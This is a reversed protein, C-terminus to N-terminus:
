GTLGLSQDQLGAVREARLLPEGRAEDLEVTGTILLPAGGSMVARVRRYLDPFIVVDIMGELDELTLFMM